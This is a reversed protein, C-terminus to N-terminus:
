FDGVCASKRELERRWTGTCDTEMRQRTAHRSTTKLLGLPFTKILDTSSRSLEIWNERKKYFEGVRGSPWKIIIIRWRSKSKKLLRTQKIVDVSTRNDSVKVIWSFRLECCPQCRFRNWLLRKGRDSYLSDDMASVGLYYFTAQINNLAMETWNALLHTQNTKFFFTLRFDFPPLRFKSPLEQVVSERETSSLDSRKTIHKFGHFTFTKQRWSNKKFSPAVLSSALPWHIRVCARQRLMGLVM